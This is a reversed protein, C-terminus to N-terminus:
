VILDSDMGCNSGSGSCYGAHFLVVVFRKLM